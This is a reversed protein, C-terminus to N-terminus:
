PTRAPRRARKVNVPEVVVRNGVRKVVRFSADPRILFEYEPYKTYPVHQVYAGGAYGKPLRIEIVVPPKGGFTKATNSDVSTSMFGKETIVDGVQALRAPNGDKAGRYVVLERKTKGRALAAKLHAIEDNHHPADAIGRLHNNIARFTNAKYGALADSERESLKAGWEAFDATLVMDQEVLQQGVTNAWPDVEPAVKAPAAPAPPTAAAKPKKPAVDDFVNPKAAGYDGLTPISKLKAPKPAAPAKAKKPKPPPVTLTANAPIQPAKGLWEQGVNYDFGPDIGEPVETIEGTKRNTHEILNIKPATDPGSKGMRALGRASVSRIWCGCHYGNPTYHTTWWGDDARLTTGNWGLHQLRPHLAGSHVYQWYPFAALTEPEVQQAYRGASYAMGLNVNYILRARYGAKGTHAWGHKAVITDFQKRFDQISTGNELAKAVEARFDGVLARTTAGAVTFSKVNAKGWVDTYSESTVNAKARLYAIAEDFPLDVAGLTTTM